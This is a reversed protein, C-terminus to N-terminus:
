FGSQVRLEKVGPEGEVMVWVSEPTIKVCVVAVKQTSVKGGRGPIAVSVEGREGPALTTKNIMALSRDRRSWVGSVKLYDSLTKPPEDEEVEVAAVKITRRASAPFFPDKGAELATEFVSEPREAVAEVAEESDKSATKTEASRKAAKSGCGAGLGLALALGVAGTWQRGRGFWRRLGTREQLNSTM